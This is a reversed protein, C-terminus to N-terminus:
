EGGVAITGANVESTRKIHLNKEYQQYDYDMRAVDEAQAKPVAVKQGAKYTRGNITIDNSLNMTTEENTATM